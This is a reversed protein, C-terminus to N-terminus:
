VVAPLARVCPTQGTLQQIAVRLGLRGNLNDGGRYDMYIYPNGSM